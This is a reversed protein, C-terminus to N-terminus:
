SKVKFMERGTLRPSNMFTIKGYPTLTIDVLSCHRPTTEKAETRPHESLLEEKNMVKIGSSLPKVLKGAPVTILNVTDLM